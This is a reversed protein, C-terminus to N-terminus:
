CAWRSEATEIGSPKEREDQCTVRAQKEALDPDSLELALKGLPVGLVSFIAAEPYLLCVLGWALISVSGIWLLTPPLMFRVKNAM